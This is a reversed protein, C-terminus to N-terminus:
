SQETRVSILGLKLRVTKLSSQGAPAGSSLISKTSNNQMGWVLNKNADDDM